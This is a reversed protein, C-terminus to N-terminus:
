VQAVSVASVAANRDFLVRPRLLIRFLLLLSQIEGPTCRNKWQGPRCFLIEILQRQQILNLSEFMIRVTPFGDSSAIQTIKGRLPLQHELIELQVSVPEEPMWNATGAQTLAVEAGVESLMTTVGWASQEGDALEIQLKVTRRLDFWEYPSPRPVDLLILLSIGLMILNYSSWIWGLGIGKAQIAMEPPVTEM